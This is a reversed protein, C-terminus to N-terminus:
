TTPALGSHGTAPLGRAGLLRHRAREINVAAGILALHTFAQPYNGLLEGTAGDAEEAMLGLPSGFALLREFRRQAQELAGIHALADALWFSCMLFGGEAGHQIGDDTEEPRYRSVLV